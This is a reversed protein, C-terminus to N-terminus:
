GVNEVSNIFTYDKRVVGLEKEGRWHSEVFVQTKGINPGSKLPKKYHRFFGRVVHLRKKVCEKPIHGTVAPLTNGVDIELVRYEYMPHRKKHRPKRRIVNEAKVTGYIQQKVSNHGLMTLLSLLCHLYQKTYDRKIWQDLNIGKPAAEILPPYTSDDPVGWWMKHAEVSHAFQGSWKVGERFHIELPMTNLGHNFAGHTVKDVVDPHLTYLAPTVCIFTDGTVLGLEPYDRDLTRRECLLLESHNGWDYQLYVNEFPLYAVVESKKNEECWLKFQANDVKFKFANRMSAALSAWIGFLGESKKIKDWDSPLLPTRNLDTKSYEKGLYTEKFESSNAQTWSTLWNEGADVNDFAAGEPYTPIILKRSSTRGWICDEYSELFNLWQGYAPGFAHPVPVHNHKKKKSM